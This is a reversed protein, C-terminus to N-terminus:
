VFGCGVVCGHMSPVFVCVCVHEDEAGEKVSCELSLQHSREPSGEPETHKCQRRRQSRSPVSDTDMEEPSLLGTPDCPMRHEAEVHAPSGM